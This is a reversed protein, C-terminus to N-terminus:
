LRVYISDSILTMESSPVFSGIRPTSQIGGHRKIIFFVIRALGLRCYVCTHHWTDSDSQSQQQGKIEWQELTGSKWEPRIVGHGWVKVGLISTILRVLGEVGGAVCHCTAGTRHFQRVVPGGNSCMLEQLTKSPESAGCQYPIFKSYTMANRNGASWWDEDFMATQKLGLWSDLASSNKRLSWTLLM